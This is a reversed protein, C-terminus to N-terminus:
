DSWELTSNMQRDDAEFGGTTRAIFQSGTKTSTANTTAKACPATTLVSWPKILISVGDPLMEAVSGCLSSTSHWIAVSLTTALAFAVRECIVVM